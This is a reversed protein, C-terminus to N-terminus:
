GRPFPFALFAEQLHSTHSHSSTGACLAYAMAVSPVAILESGPAQLPLTLGRLRYSLHALARHHWPLSWVESFAGVAVCQWM